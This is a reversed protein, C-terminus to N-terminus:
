EESEVEPDDAGKITVTSCVIQIPQFKGAHRSLWDAASEGTAPQSVGGTLKDYYLLLTRANQDSDRASLKDDENKAGRVLKAVVDPVASEFRSVVEAIISAKMQGLMEDFLGEKRWAYYTSRPVGM